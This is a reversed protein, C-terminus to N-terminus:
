LKRTYNFIDAAHSFVPGIMHDNCLKMTSHFMKSKLAGACIRYKLYVGDVFM